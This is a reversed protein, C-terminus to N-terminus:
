PAEVCGCLGNELVPQRTGCKEVCAAREYKDEAMGSGIVYGWFGFLACGLLVFLLSGIGDDM